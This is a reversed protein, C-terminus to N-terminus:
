IGGGGCFFFARYLGLAWVESARALLYLAWIGEFVVVSSDLNPNLDAKFCPFAQIYSIFSVVAHFM